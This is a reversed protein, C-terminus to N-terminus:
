ILNLIKAVIHLCSQLMEFILSIHDNCYGIVCVIVFLFKEKSLDLSHEKAIFTLNSFHKPKLFLHREIVVCDCKQSLM